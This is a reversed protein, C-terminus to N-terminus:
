TMDSGTARHVAAHWDGTDEMIAWLKSLNMHMSDTISNLWRMRLRGRRRKHETKGLM